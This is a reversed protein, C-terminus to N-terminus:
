TTIDSLSLTESGGLLSFALNGFFIVNFSIHRMTGLINRSGKFTSGINAKVGDILRTKSLVLRAMVPTFTALRIPFQHWLRLKEAEQLQDLIWTKWKIIRVISNISSNYLKNFRFMSYFISKHHYVTGSWQFTVFTNFYYHKIKHLGRIM